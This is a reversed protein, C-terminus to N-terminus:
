CGISPPLEQVSVSIVGGQASVKAAGVLRRLGELRLAVDVM